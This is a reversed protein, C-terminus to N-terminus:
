ALTPNSPKDREEGTNVVKPAFICSDPLDSGIPVAFLECKCRESVSEAEASTTEFKGADSPDETRGRKGWILVLRPSASSLLAFVQELFLSLTLVGGEACTDAADANGVGVVHVDETSVRIVVYSGNMSFLVETDTQRLTSDGFGIREALELLSTVGTM